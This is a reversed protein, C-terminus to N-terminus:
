GGLEKDIAQQFNLLPQAGVVQQNGIFFTPTGQVGAQMGEKQDKLVSVQDNKSLCDQFKVMDMGLDKAINLYTTSNLNTQNGFLGDSYEWFKGQTKSCEAAVGASVANPHIQSLPFHKFYIEVKGAYVKEVQRMTDYGSKCYPCQYDSFEIIKVKGTGTKKLPDLTIGATPTVNPKLGTTNIPCTSKNNLEIIAANTVFLKNEIGTVKDSITILQSGLLWMSGIILIMTVAFCLFIKNDDGIEYPSDQKNEEM